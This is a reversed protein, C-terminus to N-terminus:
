GYDVMTRHCREQVYSKILNNAKGSVGYFAMKSLLIGYNVCDFSKHFDCFIGGVVSKNNLATLIHKTLNYTAIDTSSAPKFGFQNDALIHNHNIHHYIRNYIVKWFDKFIIYPFLGITICSM